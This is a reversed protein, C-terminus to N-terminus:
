KSAELDILKLWIDMKVIFEEASLLDKELQIISRIHSAKPLNEEAWLKLRHIDVKETHVRFHPDKPNHEFNKKTTKM